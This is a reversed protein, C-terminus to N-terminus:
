FIIHNNSSNRKHTKIEWHGNRGRRDVAIRPQNGQGQPAQQDPPVGLNHVSNRVWEQLDDTDVSVGQGDVYRSHYSM